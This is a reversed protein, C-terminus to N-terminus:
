AATSRALTPMNPCESPPAVVAWAIACSLRTIAPTLRSPLKMGSRDGSRGVVGSCSSWASSRSASRIPVRGKMIMASPPRPGSSKPLMVLM